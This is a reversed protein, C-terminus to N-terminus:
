LLIIVRYVIYYYYSISCTHYVEKKDYLMAMTHLMNKVQQAIYNDCITNIIYIVRKIRYYMGNM